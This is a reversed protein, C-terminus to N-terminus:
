EDSGVSEIVDAVTRLIQSVDQPDLNGLTEKILSM